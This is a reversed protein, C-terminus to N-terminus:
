YTNFLMGVDYGQNLSAVCAIITCSFVYTYVRTKSRPIYEDDELLSEKELEKTSMKAVFVLLNFFSFRQKSIKCCQGCKYIGCDGYSM